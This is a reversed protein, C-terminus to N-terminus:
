LLGQAAGKEGLPLVRQGKRAPDGRFGLPLPLDQLAELGDRAQGVPDQVAAEGGWGWGGVPHPEQLREAEEAGRGEQDKQAGLGRPALGQGLGQRFGQAQGEVQAHPLPPQAVQLGGKGWPGLGDQLVM